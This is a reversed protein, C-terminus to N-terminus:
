KTKKIKLEDALDELLKKIKSSKNKMADLEHRATPFDDCNAWASLLNAEALEIYSLSFEINKLAQNEHTKVSAM